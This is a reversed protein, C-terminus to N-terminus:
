LMVRRIGQKMVPSNFNLLLGLKLQTIRLYTMVKAVHIPEFRDVSKVELVIRDDVILDLRFESLLRGKYYLPVGVQRRAPLGAIGLEISLASEYATELLGPGLERHVEIACGIIRESLNNLEDGGHLMSAASGNMRRAM